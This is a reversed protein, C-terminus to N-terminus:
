DDTGAQGPARSRKGQRILATFDTQQGWQLRKVAAIRFPRLAANDKGGAPLILASQFLVHINRSVAIIEALGYAVKGRLAPLGNLAHKHIAKM